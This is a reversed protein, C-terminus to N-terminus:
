RSARHAGFNPITRIVRKVHEATILRTCEFQRPTDKHRPCTLFDHRDFHAQVDNWCSNCAHYNIVRYPTAFETIPHTFGSIMVVPTGVAWALWSLGSSLGVFFEAHKLWRARESLPQDGTLDEAGDPMRNWVLGHGHTHKQDICIVRYGSSKLFAVVERWGHPNNWYKAQMTSQSAICVYPEAIPRTDNSIAIRPPRDAPDVGLIYAAARHLGVFRYDTPVQDKHEYMGGKVFYVVVTYSAYFRGGDVQDEIVFDIDPYADRLLPFLKANMVCTLRCGHKEQFKVAYPFWGLPDGLTDVPFRVLVNRGAADYDHSLLKEDRQWVELRFRVFYRKTSNVRGARIETEFLVNGTDLDSIRVRWPHASEPLLVRCGDNFDFRLGDPGQQTPIDALGAPGAAAATGPAAADPAIDASPAAQDPMPGPMTVMNM